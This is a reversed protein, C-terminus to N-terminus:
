IRLAANAAAAAEEEAVVAELAARAVPDEEQGIGNAIFGNFDSPRGTIRLKAERAEKRSIAGQRQAAMQQVAIGLKQADRDLEQAEKYRSKTLVLYRVKPTGLYAGFDPRFPNGRKERLADKTLLTFAGAESRFAEYGVRIALRGQLVMISYDLTDGAHFIWDVEQPEPAYFSMTEPGTQPTVRNRCVVEAGSVFWELATESLFLGNVDRADENFHCRCLHAVIGNVEEKSLMDQKRRWVPDFVGLDFDKKERGFVKIQNDVDVFVDTEDIIEEQLIEEMVDELTLVGLITFTPNDADTHTKRVLGMHTGGKKFTNLCEVLRTSKWFTEVKRGFINIFDGLKMEDEPDALMLDKTYLLGLYDNKDKGYVPIRSYGTEFIERVTAYDLPTQLPLMYADELPTMVEGVTKDRFGLAGEAVQKAMAGTAQDVAGLSIQLKLMEMLESRSHITSVERGLICDLAISMPKTVVFFIAMLVHVIPVTAAGVQLAYRSCAAQPLIEGFIVILATSVLFGVVGDGIEALLISLASNVAVNGLLLTCLLQNGKARVPMIKEADKALKSNDGKSVIQLGVMDLGMLGLTLGSFLGSFMVLVCIIPLSLALPLGMGSDEEEQEEEVCKCDAAATKYSDDPNPLTHTLARGWLRRATDRFVAQPPNKSNQEAIATLSAMKSALERDLRAEFALRRSEFLQELQLRQSRLKITEEYPLSDELTKISMRVSELSQSNRNVDPTSSESSLSSAISFSGYRFVAFLAVGFCLLVQIGHWITYRSREPDNLSPRSTLQCDGASM